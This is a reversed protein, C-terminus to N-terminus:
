KIAILVMYKPNFFEGPNPNHNPNTFVQSIKRKITCLSNSLYTLNAQFLGLAESYTPTQLSTFAQAHIIVGVNSGGNHILSRIIADKSVGCHM